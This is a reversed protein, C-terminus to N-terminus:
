DTVVLRYAMDAGGTDDAIVALYYLVGASAGLQIAHEGGSLATSELLVGNQDYLELHLSNGSLFPQLCNDPAQCLYMAYSGTDLVLALYDATDTADNATGDYLLGSSAPVVFPNAEDASNNPEAEDATSTTWTNTIYDQTIIGNALDTQVDAECSVEETCQGSYWALALAIG